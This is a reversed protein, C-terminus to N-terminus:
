LIFWLMLALMLALSALYPAAQLMPHFRPRNSSHGLIQRDRYALRMLAIDAQIQATSKTKM